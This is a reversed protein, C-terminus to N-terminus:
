KERNDACILDFLTLCKAPSLCAVKSLLMGNYANLVIQASFANDNCHNQM